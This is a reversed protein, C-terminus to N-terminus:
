TVEYLVPYVVNCDSSYVNDSIEKAIPYISEKFKNRREM